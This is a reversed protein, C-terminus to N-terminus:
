RKKEPIIEERPLIAEELGTKTGEIRSSLTAEKVVHM